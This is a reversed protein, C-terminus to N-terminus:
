MLIDTEYLASFDLYQLATIVGAQQSFSLVDVGDHRGSTTGSRRSISSM